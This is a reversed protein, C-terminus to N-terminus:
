IWSSHSWAQYWQRCMYTLCQSQTMLPVGKFLSTMSQAEYIKTQLQQHGTVNGEMEM